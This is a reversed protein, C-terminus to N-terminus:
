VRAIRGVQKQLPARMILALVLTLLAVLVNVAMPASVSLNRWAVPVIISSGIISGWEGFSGVFGTVAGRDLPITVDGILSYFANFYAPTGAGGLAFALMTLPTGPHIFVILAELTLSAMGLVIVSIRGIRDSLQGLFPSSIAAAAGGAAFALAIESSSWRLLESTLIPASTLFIAISMMSLFQILSLSFSPLCFVSTIVKKFLSSAAAARSAAAERAGSIGPIALSLFFCMGGMVGGVWFPTQISFSQSLVGALIPGAIVGINIASSTIGNALGRFGTPTRDNIYSQSGVALSSAAVGQMMRLFMMLWITTTLAYAATSVTFILLSASMIGRRGIRDSLVGMPFQFLVRGVFFAAVLLGIEFEGFGLQESYQPLLPLLMMFGTMVVGNALALAYISWHLQRLSLLM